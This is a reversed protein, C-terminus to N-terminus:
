FAQIVSCNFTLEALRQVILAMDGLDSISMLTVACSLLTVAPLSIGAMSVAPFVVLTFALKYCRSLLWALMSLNGRIEVLLTRVCLMNRM